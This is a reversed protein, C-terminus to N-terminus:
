PLAHASNYIAGDNNRSLDGKLSNTVRKRRAMQHIYEIQKMEDLTTEMIIPENDEEEQKLFQSLRENQLHRSDTGLTDQMRKNDIM